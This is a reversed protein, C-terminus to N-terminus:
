VVSKRDLTGTEEGRIVMVINPYDDFFVTIHHPYAFEDSNNLLTLNPVARGNLANLLPKIQAPEIQRDQEGVGTRLVELYKGIPKNDWILAHPQVSAFLVKVNGSVGQANAVKLRLLATQKDFQSEDFELVRSALSETPLHRERKNM